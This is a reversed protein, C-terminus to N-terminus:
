GSECRGPSNTQYGGKFFVLRLMRTATCVVYQYGLGCCYHAVAILDDRITATNVFALNGIEVIERRGIRKNVVQSLVQEVPEPLYNELYLSHEGAGSLGFSLHPAHGPFNASVLIPLFHALSASFKNQYSDLIHLEINSRGKDGQTFDHFELGRGSPFHDIEVANSLQVNLM